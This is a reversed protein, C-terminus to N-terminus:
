EGDANRLSCQDVSKVRLHWDHRNRPMLPLRKPPYYGYEHLFLGYIQNFTMDSNKGRYYMKRWLDATNPKCDVRRTQFVNGTVERITGDRQIVPRSRRRFDFQHGCHHCRCETSRMLTRLVLVGKCEPCVFPEIEKPPNDTDGGLDEQREAAVTRNTMGLAWERDANLSGHRWWNGGHDQIVVHDVGDYARLLRGGSQLYTKLTGMVCAMIGHRLWPMDIAERLVFRNWVCKIEGSLSLRLLDRRSETTSSREGGRVRIREGDIHASPVGHREFHDTFGVSEGVGPAFGISAHQYPNLKNFWDLVRGHIGPVMIACVQDKETLEEGVKYSRIHALDPEDCGYHIAKVLAGCDRLESTKGAVVLCEYWDCELPTATFGVVAAGAALHIDLVSCAAPNTNLHAEDVIVLDSPHRSWTKKRVMRSHDTQISCLQLDAWQNSDRKSSAARVGFTDGRQDFQDAIQDLLAKRNTYLSVPHGQALSLDILDFISTTKGGGTPTTVLIRKRGDHM